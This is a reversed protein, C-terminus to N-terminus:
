AAMESALHQWRPSTSVLRQSLFLRGRDWLGLQSTDGSRLVAPLVMHVTFDVRPIFRCPSGLAFRSKPEGAIEMAQHFTIKM